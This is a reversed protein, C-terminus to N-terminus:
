LVQEHAGRSAIRFAPPSALAGPPARLRPELKLQLPHRARRSGYESQSHGGSQACVGEEAAEEEKRWRGEEEQGPGAGVRHKGATVVESAGVRGGDHGRFFIGVASARKGFVDQM